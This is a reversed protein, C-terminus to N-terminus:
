SVVTSSCEKRENLKEMQMDKEKKLVELFKKMGRTNGDLLLTKNKNDMRVINLKLKRLHLLIKILFFM